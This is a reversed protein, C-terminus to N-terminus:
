LGFLNCLRKDNKIEELHLYLPVGLAVVAPGLFFSIIQGGEFYEKYETNSIKLFTMLTIISLLVPNLLAYKWRMYIKQTIFFVSLTITISFVKSTLIEEM